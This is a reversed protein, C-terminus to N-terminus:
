MYFPHAPGMRILTDLLSTAPGFAGPGNYPDAIGLHHVFSTSKLAEALGWGAALNDHDNLGCLQRPSLAFCYFLRLALALMFVSAGNVARARFSAINTRNM